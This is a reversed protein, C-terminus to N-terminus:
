SKIFYPKLIIDLIEQALAKQYEIKVFFELQESASRVDEIPPKLDLADSYSQLSLAKDGIAVSSEGRCLYTWHDAREQAIEADCLALSEQYYRATDEHRRFLASMAGLNMLPYLIENITHPRNAALSYSQFYHEMAEEYKGQRKLMGGIMGHLESDSDNVNLAESFYREAEDYYNPGKKRYTFGLERLVFFDVPALNLAQRLVEIAQDLLGFKYLKTGLTELLRLSRVQKRLAENSLAFLQTQNTVEDVRRQLREVDERSQQSSVKTELEAVRNQLEAIILDPTKSADYKRIFLGPVYIHVPSDPEPSSTSSLIRSRLRKQFGGLLTAKFYDYKLVNQSGVNFPLVTGEQAIPITGCRSLAQRIGLEYYVNANHFTLDAIVVESELLWEIYLKDIIGSQDLEDARKAMFDHPIAPLLIDKWVADFNISVNKESEGAGLYGVREGYPMIVFLRKKVMKSM